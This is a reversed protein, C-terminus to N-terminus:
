RRLYKSLNYFPILNDSPAPVTLPGLDLEGVFPKYFKKASGTLENQEKSHYRRTHPTPDFGVLFKSGEGFWYWAESKSMKKDKTFQDSALDWAVSMVKPTSVVNRKGRLANYFMQPVITLGFGFKFVVLGFLWDSLDWEDPLEGTELTYIIFAIFYAFSKNIPNGVRVGPIALNIVEAITDQWLYKALRAPILPDISSGIKFTRKTGDPQDITREIAFVSKLNFLVDDMNKIKKLQGSQYAQHIQTKFMSWQFTNFQSFQALFKGKANGEILKREMMDYLSNALAVGKEMALEIDKLDTVNDYFVIKYAYLFASQRRAKGEWTNFWRLLSGKMEETLQQNTSTGVEKVYASGIDKTTTLGHKVLYEAAVAKVVELKGDTDKEAITTDGNIIPYLINHYESLTGKKARLLFESVFENARDRIGKYIENIRKDARESFPMKKKLETPLRDLIWYYKGPINWYRFWGFDQVVRYMAQLYNRIGAGPYGLAVNAIMLQARQWNADMDKWSGRLEKPTNMLSREVKNPVQVGRTGQYQKVYVRNKKFRGWNARDELMATLGAIIADNAGLITYTDKADLYGEDALGQIVAMQKSTAPSEPRINPNSIIDDHTQNYQQINRRVNREIVEADVELYISDGEVRNVVGRIRKESNNQRYYFAVNNGTKIKDITVKEAKLYKDTTMNGYWQMMQSIIEKTQGNVSANHEYLLAEATTIDNVVANQFQIMHKSHMDMTDTIYKGEALWEPIVRERQWTHVYGDYNDVTLTQVERNVRRQVEESLSNSDRAQQYLRSIEDAEANPHMENIVNWLAWEQVFGNYIDEKYMRPFYKGKMGIFQERLKTWKDILSDIIPTNMFGEPIHNKLYTLYNMTATALKLNWHDYIKRLELASKYYGYDEVPVNYDALMQDITEDNYSAGNSTVFTMKGTKEDTFFEIGWFKESLLNIRSIIIERSLGTGRLNQITHEIITYPRDLKSNFIKMSELLARAKTHAVSEYKPKWIDKTNLPAISQTVIEPTLIGPRGNLRFFVGLDTGEVFIKSKLYLDYINNFAKTWDMAEDNYLNEAKTFLITPTSMGGNDIESKIEISKDVGLGPFVETEVRAYERIFDKGSKDDVLEALQLLTKQDPNENFSYPVLNMPTKISAAKDNLTKETNKTPEKRVGYSDTPDPYGLLSHWFLEKEEKSLEPMVSNLLDKVYELRGQMPINRGFSVMQSLKYRNNYTSFIGKSSFLINRVGKAETTTSNLLNYVSEWETVEGNNKKYIVKINNYLTRELIIKGEKVEFSAENKKNFIFTKGKFLERILKPYVIENAKNFIDTLYKGELESNEKFLRQDVPLIFGITIAKILHLKPNESTLLFNTVYQRNQPSRFEKIASEWKQSVREAIDSHKKNISQSILYQWVRYVKESTGLNPIRHLPLNVIANILPSGSAREISSNLIYQQGINAYIQVTSAKKNAQTKTVWDKYLSALKRKEVKTGNLLKWIQQQTFIYSLDQALGREAGREELNWKSTFRSAYSFLFKDVLKMGKLVLHNNPTDELELGYQYKALKTEGFNYYLGNENTPKDVADNTLRMAILYYLPINGKSTDFIYTQGNYSFHSKFGIQDKITIDKRDNIVGGIDKAFLDLLGFIGNPHQYSDPSIQESESLIQMFKLQVPKSYIDKETLSPDNLGEKSRYYQLTLKKHQEQTDRITKVLQDWSKRTTYEPNYSRIHGKDVDFDKGIKTQTHESNGVVTGYDMYDTSVPITVNAQQATMGDSPVVTLITDDLPAIHHIDAIDQSIYSVNEKLRGSGQMSGDENVVVDIYKPLQKRVENRIEETDSTISSEIRQIDKNVSEILEQNGTGSLNDREDYLASLEKKRKTQEQAMLADWLAEIKSMEAFGLDPRLVAWTSNGKYNAVKHLAKSIKSKLIEAFYPEHFLGGLEKAIRQNVINRKIKEKKADMFFVSETQKVDEDVQTYALDLIIQALSQEYQSTGNLAVEKLEQLITGADFNIMQDTFEDLLSDLLETQYATYDGVFFSNNKTDLNAGLSQVIGRVSKKVVGTEKDRYINNFPINFVSIKDPENLNSVKAVKNVKASESSVLLTINNKKMWAGLFDNTSQKQISSKIYLPTSFNGSTSNAIWAKMAGPNIIGHLERYVKGFGEELYYVVGDTSPTGLENVFVDHMDVTITKGKFELTEIWKGKEPIANFIVARAELGENGKVIGIPNGKMIDAIRGATQITSVMPAVDTPRKLIKVLDYCNKDNPDSFLYNWQGPESLRLDEMLLRVTQATKVVSNNSDTLGELKIGAEKLKAIRKDYEDSIKSIASSIDGEKIRLGVVTGKDSWTGPFIINHKAFLKVYTENRNKLNFNIDNIPNWSIVGDKIYKENDLYVLELKVGLIQELIPIRESLKIKNRWGSKIANDKDRYTDGLEEITSDLIEAGSDFRTVLRITSYKELSSAYEYLQIILKDMFEPLTFSFNHTSYYVDASKRWSNLKLIRSRFQELGMSKVYSIYDAATEGLETAIQKGIARIMRPNDITNDPDQIKDFRDYGEEMSEYIGSTDDFVMNWYDIKAPSGFHQNMVTELADMFTPTQLGVKAFFRKIIDFFRGLYTSKSKNSVPTNKAWEALKSNQALMYAAFEQIMNEPSEQFIRDLDAKNAQYFSKQDTEFRLKVEKMLADVSNYLERNFLKSGPSLSEYLFEHTGEHVLTKWVEVYDKGIKSTNIIIKSGEKHRVLVGKEDRLPVDKAIMYGPEALVVELDPIKGFLWESFESTENDVFGKEKMKSVAQTLSRIGKVKTDKGPQSSKAQQPAQIPKQLAGKLISKVSNIDANRNGAVNLTKINNKFLWDRLEQVSPNEIYPKKHQKALNRTLKSGPSNVNKGFLVTGDSQLVNQETRPGYFKERGTYKQTQEPTIEVMGFSKLSSDSGKSTYYGKPAVGGTQLGLEKGVELGARDAGIQGGSIIKIVQPVNTSTQSADQEYLLNPVEKNFLIDESKPQVELVKSSKFSEQRLEVTKKISEPTIDKIPILVATREFRQGPAVMADVVLFDGTKETGKQIGKYTADIGSELLKTKLEAEIPTTGETSSEISAIEVPINEKVKDVLKYEDTRIPQINDEKKIEERNFLVDDGSDTTSIPQGDSLTDYAVLEKGLKVSYDLFRQQAIKAEKSDGKLMQNHAIKTLREPSLNPNQKGIEKQLNQFEPSSEIAGIFKDRLYKEPIAYEYRGYPDEIDSKLITDYVNYGKVGAEINQNVETFQEKAKNEAFQSIAEAYVEPSDKYLKELTAEEDKLEKFLNDYEPSNKVEKEVEAIGKKVLIKGLGKKRNEAGKISETTENVVDKKIQDLANNYETVFREYAMMDLEDEDVQKDLTKLELQLREKTDQFKPLKNVKELLNKNYNTVNTKVTENIEDVTKKFDTELKAPDNVLEKLKDVAKNRQEVTLVGAEVKKDLEKPIEQELTQLTSKMRSHNFRMPGGGALIMSLPTITGVEIFEDINWGKQVGTVQKITQEGGTQFEEQLTEGLVLEAGKKLIGKSSVLDKLTEKSLKGSFSKRLMGAVEYPGFGLDTLGLATGVVSALAVDEKTGGGDYIDAALEMSEMSMATMGAIPLGIYPVMALGINAAVQGTQGVLKHIFDDDYEKRLWQTSYLADEIAKRSESYKKVNKSINKNVEEQMIESQKIYKEIEEKDRYPTVGMPSTNNQSVLAKGTSSLWGPISNIIPATSQVIRGILDSVPGKNGGTAWGINGTPNIGFSIFNVLDEAFSVPKEKSKDEPINGFIKAEFQGFSITNEPDKDYFPQVETDYYSKRYAPDKVMSEKFSDFDLINEKGYKNAIQDYASKLYEDM